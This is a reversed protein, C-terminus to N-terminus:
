RSIYRLLCVYLAYTEYYQLLQNLNARSNLTIELPRGRMLYDFNRAFHEELDNKRIGIETSDPNVIFQGSHAGAFGAYEKHADPILHEPLHKRFHGGDVLSHRVAVQKDVEDPRIIWSNWIHHGIEHIYDQAGKISITRNIPDYYSGTGDNYEIALKDNLLGELIIDPLLKTIMKVEIWLKPFARHSRSTPDTTESILAESHVHRPPYQEKYARALHYLPPRKEASIIMTYDPPSEGKIKDLLRNVLNDSYHHAETM